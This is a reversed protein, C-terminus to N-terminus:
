HVLDDTRKRKLAPGIVADLRGDHGVFSRMWWYGEISAALRKGLDHQKAGPRPVLSMHVIRWGSTWKRRSL